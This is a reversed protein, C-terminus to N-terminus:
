VETISLLTMGAELGPTSNTRRVFDYPTGAADSAAQLIGRVGVPSQDVLVGRIPGFFPGDEETLNGLAGTYKITVKYMKGIQGGTLPPPPSPEPRVYTNGNDDAGEYPPALPIKDEEPTGPPPPPVPSGIGGGPPSLDSQQLGDPQGIVMPVSSKFVQLIVGPELKFRLETCNWIPYDVLTDFVVDALQQIIEKSNHFEQHALQVVYNNRDVLVTRRFRIDIIDIVYEGYMLCCYGYHGKFPNSKTNVYEQYPLQIVDGTVLLNNAGRDEPLL